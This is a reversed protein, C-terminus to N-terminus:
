GASRANSVVDNATAGVVVDPRVTVTVDVVVSIHVTEPTFTVVSYAPVQVKTAETASLAL